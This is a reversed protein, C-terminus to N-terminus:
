GEKVEFAHAQNPALKVYLGNSDLDTRAWSYENGDLLDCFVCNRSAGVAAERVKGQATRKGLNVVMLRCDDQHRWSYAILNQFTDDGAPQV